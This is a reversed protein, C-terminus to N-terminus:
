LALARGVSTDCFREALKDEIMFCLALPGVRIEGYVGLFLAICKINENSVHLDTYTDHTEESDLPRSLTQSYQESFSM